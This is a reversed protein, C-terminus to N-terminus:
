CRQCDEIPFLSHTTYNQQLEMRHEKKTGKKARQMKGRQERVKAIPGPEVKGGDFFWAFGNKECLFNRLQFFLFLFLSFAKQPWLLSADLSTPVKM